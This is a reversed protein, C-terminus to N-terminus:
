VMVITNEDPKSDCEDGEMKEGKLFKVFEKLAIDANEYKLFEEAVQAPTVNTKKLLCQIEGYLHHHDGSIELYNSALQKFAEFTCYGMYIRKDMRGPRLLAPDLKDKNNTTFIIIREDGCSSWIGDIFNLLGSLTLSPGASKKDHINHHDSKNEEVGHLRDPLNVSCDIDEIVIISRNGTALLLRRLESDRHINALQLDYVDFKLHNAMAAVLSSKGTGPPGYLLYGRKWARGVKKYFEKRKVFRDLDDIIDDKKKQDMALTEFTAPHDLNISQWNTPDYPNYANNLTHMKLVRQEESIAKARDLVFQIYSKSLEEHIKHFSLEYFRKESSNSPIRRGSSSNEQKSCVFKWQFEIGKYMDILEEGDELRITLGKEKPNKRVNLRKTEPSRLTDLYVGAAEYVENGVFENGADVVFTLTPPKHSKFLKQVFSILPERVQEPLIQYLMSQFFMISATISAFAAFLSSPSPMENISFM